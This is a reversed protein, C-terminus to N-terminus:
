PPRSTPPSSSRPTCGRPDGASTSCSSPPDGKSPPGQSNSRPLKLSVSKHSATSASQMVQLTSSEPEERSSEHHGKGLTENVSLLSKRLNNENTLRRRSGM